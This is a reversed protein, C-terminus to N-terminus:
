IKCGMSDAYEKLSAMVDADLDYAPASETSDHKTTDVGKSSKAELERQNQVTRENIKSMFAGRIILDPNPQQLLTDVTYGAKQLNDFMDNVDEQSFNYEKVVGDLAKQFSNVRAQQMQIINQTNLRNIQAEQEQLKRYVEPSIGQKQANKADMAQKLQAKYSNVDSFGAMRALDNFMDEYEKAKALADSRERNLKAFAFDRQEDKTHKVKSKQYEIPKEETVQEVEESQQSASQTEQQEQTETQEAQTTEPNEQVETSADDTYNNEFYDLIEEVSSFDKNEM